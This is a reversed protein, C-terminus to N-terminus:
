GLLAGPCRRWPQRKHGGPSPRTGSSSTCGGSFPLWQGEEVQGRRAPGRTQPTAEIRPEGWQQPQPSPAPLEQEVWEVKQSQPAGGLWHPKGKSRFGWRERERVALGISLRVRPPRSVPPARVLWLNWSGSTLLSSLSLFGLAKNLTRLQNAAM